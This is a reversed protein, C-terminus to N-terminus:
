HSDTPKSVDIEGNATFVRNIGAIKLVRTGKNFLGHTVFLNVEIAGKEFLKEALLKFTWGGDCIDDVIMVKKDEPDGILSYSIIDGTLQDREKTGHIISGTFYYPSDPLGSYKVLAGDDPFCICNSGTESIASRVQLQPYVISFETFEGMGFFETNHPDLIEILKFSFRKLIILFTHLAFTSTNSIHKDQRGYPLYDIYLHPQISYRNLLHTLQCLHILEAESEFFWEIYHNKSNVLLAPDLKWVQSTKDPFITPKIEVKNLLIM